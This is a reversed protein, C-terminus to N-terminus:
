HSVCSVVNRNRGSERQKLDKIRPTPPPPHPPPVHWWSTNQARIKLSKLLGLISELSDIGGFMDLRAPRYSLGIGVQNRAAWLNNLFELVPGCSSPCHALGASPVPHCRFKQLGSSSYLSASGEVSLYSLDYLNFCPRSQISRRLTMNNGFFIM